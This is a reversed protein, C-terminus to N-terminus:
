KKTKISCERFYQAIDEKKLSSDAVGIALEYLSDFDYHVTINNEQLFSIAVVLGTRKNGDVFPHNKIIHYFYAAAMEFIDQYIYKGFMSIQPQAIASELLNRDRLGKFVSSNPITFKYILLVEDTDFFIIDKM